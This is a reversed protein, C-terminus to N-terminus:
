GKHLKYLLAQQERRELIQAKLAKESQAMRNLSSKSTRTSSSTTDRTDFHSDVHIRLEEENAMEIQCVPCPLCTIGSSSSISSSSCAAEENRSNSKTMSDDLHTQNIHENLILDSGFLAGCFMCELEKHAMSFHAEISCKVVQLCLPCEIEVSNEELEIIEEDGPSKAPKDDSKKLFVIEQIDSTNAESSVSELISANTANEQDESSSTM